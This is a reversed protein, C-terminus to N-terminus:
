SIWCYSVSCFASLVHTNIVNLTPLQRPAQLFKYINKLSGKPIIIVSPICQQLSVLDPTSQTASFGRFCTTLDTCKCSEQLVVEKKRLESSLSIGQTIHHPRQKWSVLSYFSTYLGPVVSQLYSPKGFAGNNQRGLFYFTFSQLESHSLFWTPICVPHTIVCFPCPRSTAVM